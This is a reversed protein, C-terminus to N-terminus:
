APPMNARVGRPLEAVAYIQIRPYDEVWGPSHYVGGLGADISVVYTGHNGIVKAVIKMGTRTCEFFHGIYRGAEDGPV